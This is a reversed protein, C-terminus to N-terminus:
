NASEGSVDAHLLDCRNQTVPCQHGTILDFIPFYRFVVDLIDSKGGWFGIRRM